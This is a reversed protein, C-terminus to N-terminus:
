YDTHRAQSSATRDSAAVAERSASSSPTFHEGGLEGEVRHYKTKVSWPGVGWVKWGGRGVEM